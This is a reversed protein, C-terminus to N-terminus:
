TFEDRICVAGPFYDPEPRRVSKVLLGVGGARHRSGAANHQFNQADMHCLAVTLKPHSIFDCFLFTPMYTVHKGNIFHLYFLSTEYKRLHTEFTTHCRVYIM